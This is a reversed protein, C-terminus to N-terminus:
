SDEAFRFRFGELLVQWFKNPTMVIGMESLERRNYAESVSLLIFHKIPEPIGLIAPPDPEPEEEDEGEEPEGEPEGEPEEPEEPEPEEEEYGYGAVFDIWVPYETTSLGSPWSKGDKLMIYGPETSTIVEYDTAPVTQTAGDSDLYKVFEVSDLPPYPLAIRAGNFGALRARFTQQMISRGLWGFPPDLQAVASRIFATLMADHTNHDIVCHAKVEALTVPLVTAATEIQVHM